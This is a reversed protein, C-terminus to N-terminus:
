CTIGRVQIIGLAPSGTPLTSSHTQLVAEIYYANLFFDMSANCAGTTVTHSQFLSSAPYDNSDLRLLERGVGTELNYEMLRVLVTSNDGNDRFRVQLQHDGNIPLVGPVAVVNYRMTLIRPAAGVLSVFGGSTSYEALDAEDPTGAAGISTWQGMAVSAGLLLLTTAILTPIIRTTQSTM